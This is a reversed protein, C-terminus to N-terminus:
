GSLRSPNSSGGCRSPLPNPRRYRNRKPLLPSSGPTRGAQRLAEYFRQLTNRGLELMRTDAAGSGGRGTAM